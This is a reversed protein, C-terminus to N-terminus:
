SPRFVIMGLRILMSLRYTERCFDRCAPYRCPSVTESWVAHRVVRKQTETPGPRKRPRQVRLYRDEPCVESSRAISHFGLSGSSMSTAPLNRGRDRPRIKSQLDSPGIDSESGLPPDALEPSRLLQLPCGNLLTDRGSLGVQLRELGDQRKGYAATREHAGQPQLHDSAAPSSEPFRRTLPGTM